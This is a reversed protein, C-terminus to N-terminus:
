RTVLRVADKLPKGEPGKIYQGIWTPRRNRLGPGYAQNRWHGTTWWQCSWDVTRDGDGREAYVTKRQRFTVVNVTTEMSPEARNVRKQTSTVPANKHIVIYPSQLFLCRGVLSLGYEDLSGTGEEYFTHTIGVFTGEEPKFFERWQLAYLGAKGKTTAWELMEALLLSDVHHWKDGDDFEIRIVLPKEYLWMMPRLSLLDCTVPGPQKLAGAAALGTRAMAETWIFPHATLGLEYWSTQIDVVTEPPAGGFDNLFVNRKTMFALQSLSTTLLDLKLDIASSPRAVSPLRGPSLRPLMAKYGANDDDYFVQIGM